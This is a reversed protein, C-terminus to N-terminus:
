LVKKLFNINKNIFSVFRAICAKSDDSGDATYSSDIIISKLFRRKIMRIVSTPVKRLSVLIFSLIIATVFGVSEQHGGVLTLAISNIWSGFAEFM